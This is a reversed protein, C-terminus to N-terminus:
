WVLSNVNVAALMWGGSRGMVVSNRANSSLHRRTRRILYYQWSDLNRYRIMLPTTKMETGRTVIVKWALIVALWLFLLELRYVGDM